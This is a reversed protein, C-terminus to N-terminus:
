ILTFTGAGYITCGYKDQFIIMEESFNVKNYTFQLPSYKDFNNTPKETKNFINKIFNEINSWDEFEYIHILRIGREFCMMSKKYHYDKNKRKTSHWYIGNYEFAINLEPLYIDLEYSQLATRNGRIIVGNYYKTILNYLLQEQQSAHGNTNEYYNKITEADKISVFGTHYKYLIDVIRNKYWSQGYESFLEQITVYGLSKQYNVNNIHTDLAKQSKEVNNSNAISVFKKFEDTKSYSEVGFKELCTQKAKEVNNYNEDGYKTLKTQKSQERTKPNQLNYEYGTNSLMTQKIKEKIEESQYPNTVGYHNFCTQERKHIVELDNNSCKSSCHKLYGLRIGQFSTEKGCICYGENPKRLYTDYYLKSDINHTRRLHLGLSVYNKVEQNCILCIM